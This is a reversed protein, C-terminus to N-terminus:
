RCLSLIKMGGKSRAAVLLIEMAPSLDVYILSTAEGKAVAPEM